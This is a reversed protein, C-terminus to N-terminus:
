MRVGWEAGAQHLFSAGTTIASVQLAPTPNPEEKLWMHRTCRGHWRASSRSSWGGSAAPCRKRAGRARSSPMAVLERMSWCCNTWRKSLRLCFCGGRPSATARPAEGRRARRSADPVRLLPSGPQAARCCCEEGEEEEEETEGGHGVLGQRLRELVKHAIRTDMELSKSESM